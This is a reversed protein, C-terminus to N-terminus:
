SSSSLVTQRNSIFVLNLEEPRGIDDTFQELFWTWSDKNQQEVVVMAVPFINDNGDKAIASLLQRGFRGKLHCGDLGIFPKCGGLFGVKQANYRIYMRKFKPEVNDNEMETQLIVRSGVDTRLIMEAYDKLLGYQAEKNGTILGRAAKRSRYM